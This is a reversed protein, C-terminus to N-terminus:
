KLLSLNEYSFVRFDYSGGTNVTHNKTQHMKHIYSIQGLHYLDHQIIGNLLYQFSYPKNAVVRNLLTDDNQSLLTLLYQQNEALKNKLANWANGPEPYWRKWDFSGEQDPLYEANGRLRMKVFERWTIMHAALEAISHVGAGPREYVRDPNVSELIQKISSGYWPDGGYILELQNVIRELESSSANSNTIANM